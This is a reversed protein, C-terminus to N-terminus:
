RDDGSGRGFAGPSPWPATNIMPDIGGNMQRRRRAREQVGQHARLYKSRRVFRNHPNARCLGPWRKTGSMEFAAAAGREPFNLPLHIKQAAGGVSAMLGAIIKMIGRRDKSM